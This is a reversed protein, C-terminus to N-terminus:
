HSQYLHHHAIYRAVPPPVLTEISQHQALRQRIDTASHAMAPMHLSQLNWTGAPIADVQTQSGGSEPRGAVCIIALRALDASRHWQPLSRAQDQGILLYLRAAPRERHLSELTDVTYSPGDREIERADVTVQPLDDFALACMALRHAASTLAPTKHSPRGTPVIHLRELGWQAIAARALAVHGLHPPDFAGGFVGVRVADKNM